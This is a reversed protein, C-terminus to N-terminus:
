KTLIRCEQKGRQVEELELARMHGYIIRRRKTGIARQLFWSVAGYDPATIEALDREDFISLQLPGEHVVYRVSETEINDEVQRIDRKTV